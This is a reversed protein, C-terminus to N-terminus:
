WIIVTDPLGSRNMSSLFVLISCEIFIATIKVPPVMPEVMCSWYTDVSACAGYRRSEIYPCLLFEHKDFSATSKVM